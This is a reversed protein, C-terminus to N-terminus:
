NQNWLVNQMTFHTEEEPALSFSITVYFYFFFWKWLFDPVNSKGWLIFTASIDHFAISRRFSKTSERCFVSWKSMSEVSVVYLSLIVPFCYLEWCMRCVSASPLSRVKIEIDHSTLYSTLFAIGLPSKKLLHRIACSFLYLHLLFTHSAFTSESVDSHDIMHETWLYM